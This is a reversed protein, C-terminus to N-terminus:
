RILKLGASEFRRLDAVNSTALSAEVRLAVAAIMCDIFSGRRRGALNFLRATVASDAELFPVPPELIHAALEVQNPQVPGCLFEAWSVSSTGVPEGEALWHRLQRDGPSGPALAHILFTTDLLIV